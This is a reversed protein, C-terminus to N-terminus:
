ESQQKLHDKLIRSGYDGEPKIGLEEYAWIIHDEFPDRDSIENYKYQINLKGESSLSLTLNTWPEQGNEVFLDSLRRFCKFLRYHLGDIDDQSIESKKPIDLSYTPDSNNTPYYYFFVEGAGETISAYLKISDWPEPITESVIEFIEDYVRAM